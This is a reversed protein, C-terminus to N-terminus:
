GGKIPVDLFEIQLSSLARAFFQAAAYATM